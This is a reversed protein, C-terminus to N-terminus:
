LRGGMLLAMLAKQGHLRNEAEDIVVSRPGDIVEDTVEQGRDAPLCHMYIGHKDVLEMQAKTTKWHQNVQEAQAHDQKQVTKGSEDTYNFCAVAGWSKPYVVQAGRFGEEFDNVM